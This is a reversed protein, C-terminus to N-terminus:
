YDGIQIICYTNMKTFLNKDIVFRGKIININIFDDKKIKNFIEDKITPKKFEITDEKSEHSTLIPLKTSINTSESTYKNDSIKSM